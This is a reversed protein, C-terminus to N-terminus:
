YQSIYKYLTPKSINMMECIVKIPLNQDKSIQQLVKQKEKELPKPKGGKKGRTRAVALGAM